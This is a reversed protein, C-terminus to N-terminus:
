YRQKTTKCLPLIGAEGRLWRALLQLELLREVVLRIQPLQWRSSQEVRQEREGATGDFKVLEDTEGGVDPANLVQLSYLGTLLVIAFDPVSQGVRANINRQEHFAAHVQRSQPLFYACQTRQLSRSQQQIQMIGAALIHQRQEHQYVHSTKRLNRCREVHRHRFQGFQPVVKGEIIRGDGLTQPQSSLLHDVQAFRRAFTQCPAHGLSPSFSPSLQPISPICFM